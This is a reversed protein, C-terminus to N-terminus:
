GSYFRPCNGRLNRSIPVVRGTARELYSESQDNQFELGMIIESLKVAM